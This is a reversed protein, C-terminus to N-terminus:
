GKKQAVAMFHPGLALLSPEEEVKRSLTLLFSRLSPDRWYERLAPVWWLFGEPAFLRVSSFGAAGVEERFDEPRSFFATTFYEPIRSPNRHQGTSLDRLIIRRFSPDRVFGQWSGDLMSTFRSIGVAFLVGGPRLVRLAERLAQLRDPRKTLHYLPGMLLVADAYRAPFPLRRADGVQSDLRVHQRTARRAAQEVHLTVPELLHVEYGQKALWLSYNGPGGGVDLVRAPVAPLFRTLLEKQRQFEIASRGSGLRAAEHAQQEHHYRISPQLRPGRSSARSVMPNTGRPPSTEESLM